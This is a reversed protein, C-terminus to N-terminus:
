ETRRAVWVVTLDDQIPLRARSYFTSVFRDLCARAAGGSRSLEALRIVEDEGLFQDDDDVSEPVADSYLILSDGPLMPRSFRIREVSTSLGLLFGSGDLLEPAGGRPLFVPSPAGAAAWSLTNGHLDIVAYFITAFQGLPLLPTLTADLRSLMEEPAHALERHDHILTHLRFTNLAAAIGHGSFDFSYIALLGDGVEMCGWLDGGIALSPELLGAFDVSHRAEIATVEEPRPLLAMQMRRAASLENHILAPAVGSVATSRDREAKSRLVAFHVARALRDSLLEDKHVFDQAGLGLVDDPVRPDDSGTVVVIPLDPAVARLREIVDAGWADPLGLDVVAVDAGEGRLVDVADGVLAVRHIMQPGHPEDNLSLLELTADGENDEILLIRLPSPEAPRGPRSVAAGHAVGSDSGLTFVM